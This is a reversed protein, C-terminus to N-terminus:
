RVCARPGPAPRRPRGGGRLGVGLPWESYVMKGAELAASVLAHHHTVKVAVVVLDVDPHAILDAHNDFAAPVDFEKAAVEASARRSTSIARLEYDPLAKLAPFPSKRIGM